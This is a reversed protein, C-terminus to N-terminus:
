ASVSPELAFALAAIEAQEVRINALEPRETSAIKLANDLRNLHLDTEPWGAGIPELSWNGWNLVVPESKQDGEAVPIWLGDQNIEANFVALPLSELLKQLIPLKALLVSLNHREDDSTVALQLRGLSVSCLDM